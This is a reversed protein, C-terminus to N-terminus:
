SQTNFNATQPQKLAILVVSALILVIGCAIRPTLTEHFVTVGFFVATLPELAGIISTGTAGLRPLALSTFGISTATSILSLGAINLAVFPSFSGQFGWGAHIRAFFFLLCFFVVYFTLKVPDISKVCSLRNVTVLYVGYSLASLLVYIIGILSLFGGASTRCLLGVGICSLLICFVVSSTIRERFGIAMIPVVMMPYVFLLTSAIGADMKTYSLFLFCSTCAFLLGCIICGGLEKRTLRFHQKRLKVLLGLLITAPLYRVFLVSDVDFGNAYLPLAFLPNMGYTVAAIIAFVVGSYGSRTQSTVGM